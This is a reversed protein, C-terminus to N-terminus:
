PALLELWPKVEALSKENDVASAEINMRSKKCNNLFFVRAGCADNGNLIFSCRFWGPPTVLISFDAATITAVHVEMNLRKLDAPTSPKDNAATFFLRASKELDGESKGLVQNESISTLSSAPVCLMKAEGTQVFEIGGLREPMFEYQISTNTYGMLWPKFAVSDLRAFPRPLRDKPFIADWVQVLHQAGHKDVMPCSVQDDRQAM